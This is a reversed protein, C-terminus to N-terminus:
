HTPTRLRDSAQLVLFARATRALTATIAASSGADGITDIEAGAGARARAWGRLKFAADGRLTRLVTKNLPSL